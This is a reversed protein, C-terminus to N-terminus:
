SIEYSDSVLLRLAEIVRKRKPEEGTGHVPEM